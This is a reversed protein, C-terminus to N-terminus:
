FYDRSKEKELLINKLKLGWRYGTEKDNVGIVRHCPILFAIKNKACASGIARYAKGAGIDNAIKSYTVTQGPAVNDILYKWVKIQLDTGELIMPFDQHLEQPKELAFFIQKDLEDAMEKEKLDKGKALKALEPVLKEKDENLLLAYIKNNHTAILSYTFSNRLIIFEIM